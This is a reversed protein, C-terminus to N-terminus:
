RRGAPVARRYLLFSCCSVIHFSKEGEKGDQDKRGSAPQGGGTKLIVLGDGELFAPGVGEQQGDGQIIGDFAGGVLDERGDGVADEVGGEVHLLFGTGHFLGGEAIFVVELVLVEGFVFLGTVGLLSGHGPFVPDVAVEGAPPSPVVDRVHDLIVAEAAADVSDVRHGGHDEVGPRSLGDGLLGEEGIGVLSRDGGQDLGM